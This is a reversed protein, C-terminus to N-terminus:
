DSPKGPESREDIYVCIEHCMSQAKGIMDALRKDLVVWEGNDMDINQVEMGALALKVGADSVGTRAKEIKENMFVIRNMTLAAHAACVGPASDGRDDM